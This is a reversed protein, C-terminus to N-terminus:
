AVQSQEHPLNRLFNPCIDYGNYWELGGGSEIKVKQFNTEDLLEKTFGSGILPKINVTKEHGDQFKLWIYYNGLIKFDILENM